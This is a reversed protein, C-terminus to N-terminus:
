GPPQPQQGAPAPPPAPAAAPPTAHRPDLITLGVDLRNEGAMIRPDFEYKQDARLDDLRRVFDLLPDGKDDKLSVEVPEARLAALTITTPGPSANPDLVLDGAFVAANDPSPKLEIVQKTRHERAFVRAKVPPDAPARLTVRLKVTAGAPAMAPDIEPEALLVAQNEIESKKDGGGAPALKVTELWARPGVPRDEVTAAPELWYAGANGRADQFKAASVAIRVEGPVPDQRKEKPAAQREGLVTKVATERTKEKARNEVAGAAAGTVQAAVAAPNATVASVTAATATRVPDVEKVVDATTKVVAGAVKVPAAIVAGVGRAIQGLLGRRRSPRLRLLHLADAAIAYRGQADTKTWALAKGDKDVVAVTADAVPQGDVASVVRGYLAGKNFDPRPAGAGGAAAAPPDAAAAPAASLVFAAAAAAAAVAVALRAAARAPVRPNKM